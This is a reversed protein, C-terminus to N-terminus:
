HIVYVCYIMHILTTSEQITRRWLRTTQEGLEFPFDDFSGDVQMVKPNRNILGNIPAGYSWLM